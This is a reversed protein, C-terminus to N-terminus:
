PSEVPALLWMDALYLDQRGDIDYDFWCVSRAAGIDEV